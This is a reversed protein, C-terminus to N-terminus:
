RGRVGETEYYAYSGDTHLLKYITEVRVVTVGNVVKNDGLSIHSPVLGNLAAVRVGTPSLLVATM